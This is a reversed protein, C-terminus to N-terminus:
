QIQILEHASLLVQAYQHWIKPNPQDGLWQLGLEVEAPDPSRSYLQKYARDIRESVPAKLGHFYNGMTIARATMFHSNMMFLYQQPVTSTPRSASTSVAAPFDFLRLFADSEFRDGTRSITAYLTRRKSRLIEGDPKGGVRQDLEGTVALLTDRWAEVELRRPNMRWLLRNDGDIAFKEKDIQSSMQWTSSLMIQRHLRKLSWGHEVFDCALWDLLEPHTPEEGLVGFNSPTRVLAKGFHWQWVRNVIVRATLPNDPATVSRALEFRGSGKTYPRPLDGALIRIFRRPVLEGKKRLDGRLAVHMNNKGAEQLVHAIEYKKPAVKRLRDLEARMAAVKQKAEEGMSKEVDKREIKLRKSEEVLFSNVANNQNKIADQGKRYTDVVEKSVLPHEGIRTNKFIGAIAYYDKITIPDFKHDHCRACAATLGLFARSFTDVRDSLTEAQAQAKAEPDGGDSTYSPGVVFFGTAVPDPDDELLDGAIQRSVFENYPMDANLANVVWDRYRWADPLARNDGFGGLGDSYRAVDLWHRAWREGYHQSSLLGHVVQEFADIEPDNVFSDVQEPTPPLGILNLYARRILIRKTAPASPQLGKAELKGLVFHDIQASPWSSNKVSPPTAKVMPKFSWHERRFHDWDYAEAPAEPVIGSSSDAGTWPAGMAVWDAFIKIQADSLKGKPPMEMDENRYNVAEVIFSKEPHGPTLASGSDGGKLHGNRSDLFLGAKLKGKEEAKVSHCRYCKDALLPRVKNEFFELEEATPPAAETGVAFTIGCLYAFLVIAWSNPMATSYSGDAFGKSPNEM